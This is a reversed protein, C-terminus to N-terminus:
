NTARGATQKSSSELTRTHRAPRIAADCDTVYRELERSTIYTRAGDKQCKISGENIRNYLQARSMKLIQVVEFIEFRLAPLAQQSHSNGKRASM